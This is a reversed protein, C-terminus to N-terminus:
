LTKLLKRLAELQPSMSDDRLFDALDVILPKGGSGSLSLHDSGSRLVAVNDDLM